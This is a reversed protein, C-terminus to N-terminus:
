VKPTGPWGVICRKRRTEAPLRTQAAASGGASQQPVWDGGARLAHARRDVGRVASKEGRPEKRRPLQAGFVRLAFGPVRGAFERSEQLKDNLTIKQILSQLEFISKQSSANERAAVDTADKDHSDPLNLFYTEVGSIHTVPSSNAHISLFLDARQDNAM